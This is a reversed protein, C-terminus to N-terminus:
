QAVLTVMRLHASQVRMDWTGAVLANHGESDVQESSILMMAIHPPVVRSCIEKPGQREARPMTEFRSYRAFPLPILDSLVAGYAVEMFRSELTSFSTDLFIAELGGCQPNNVRSVPEDIALGRWSCACAPDM